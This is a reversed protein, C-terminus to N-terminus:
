HKGVVVEIVGELGDFNELAKGIVSGVRPNAEARARGNGASVMMDGKAIPGVVKCPVRGTLAVPVVHEGSQVANMLYAPDTSVVGAVKTCMDVNCQSVEASGGFHLVTGPEYAQDAVYNEALDAYQANVAKGWFSNYWLSSSGISAINSVGPTINGAKLDSYTANTFDVTTTPEAVVNAFLKWIGDTADRVLGTHQYGPNTFASVFGIDLIDSPNDDALYILSDNISLNNANFITTNGNIFLNGAVTLNGGFFSDKAIGVGGSVVLAGSTASTSTTTLLNLQSIAGFSAVNSGNVAVNVYSTTVQVNSATSQIKAADLGGFSGGGTVSINGTTTLAGTAADITLPGVTLGNHVVFNSNAM